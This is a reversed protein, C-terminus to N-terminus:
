SQALAAQAYAKAAEPGKALLVGFGEEDLTPVGLSLAKDLKSGASEGVVELLRSRHAGGLSLTLATAKISLSCRARPAGSAQANTRRYPRQRGVPPSVTYLFHTRIADHRDNM